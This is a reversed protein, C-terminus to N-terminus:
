SSSSVRFITDFDDSRLNHHYRKQSVSLGSADRLNTIVGFGEDSDDEVSRQQNNAIEKGLGSRM